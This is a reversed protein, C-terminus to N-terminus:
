TTLSFEMVVVVSFDTCHDYVALADLGHLFRKLTV